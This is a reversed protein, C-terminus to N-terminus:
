NIHLDNHAGPQCQPLRGAEGVGTGLAPILPIHYRKHTKQKNTQKELTSPHKAQMYTQAGHAYLTQPPLSLASPGRSSSVSCTTRHRMHTSSVLGPYGRRSCQTDKVLLGHKWVRSM